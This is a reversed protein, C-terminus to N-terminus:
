SREAVATVRVKRRGWLHAGLAVFWFGGIVRKTTLYPTGDFFTADTYGFALGAVTYVILLTTLTSPHRTGRALWVLTTVGAFVSFAGIRRWMSLLTEALPGQDVVESAAATWVTDAGNVLWPEPSFLLWFGTVLDFIAVSGVVIAVFAQALLVSPPLSQPAPVPSSDHM